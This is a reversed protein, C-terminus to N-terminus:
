HFENAIRLFESEQYKIMLLQNLMHDAIPFGPKGPVACLRNRQKTNDCRLVNIQEKNLITYRTGTEGGYVTIEGTEKYEKKQEESLHLFLLEEAKEDAEKRKKPDIIPNASFVFSFDVPHGREDVAVIGGDQRAGGYLEQSSVQRLNWRQYSTFSTDSNYRSQALLLDPRSEIASDLHFIITEKIGEAIERPTPLGFVQFEARTLWPQIEPAPKWETSVSVVLTDRTPDPTARTSSIDTIEFRYPRGANRQIFYGDIDRYITELYEAIDSNWRHIQLATNFETSRVFPTFLLENIIYDSRDSFLIERSIATTYRLGDACLM